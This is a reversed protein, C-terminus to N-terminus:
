MGITNIDNNIQTLNENYLTIKSEIEKLKVIKEGKIIIENQINKLKGNIENIETNSALIENALKDLKDKLNTEKLQFENNIRSYM